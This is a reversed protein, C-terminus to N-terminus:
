ELTKVELDENNVCNFEFKFDILTSQIEVITDSILSKEGLLTEYRVLLGTNKDFYCITGFEDFYEIRYCKKGNVYSTDLSYKFISIPNKFDNTLSSIFSWPWELINKIDENTANENTENLIGDIFNYITNNKLVTDPLNNFTKILNKDKVWIQTTNSSSGLYEYMRIYYNASNSYTSIKNSITNFIILKRIYFVLIIFILIWIVLLIYKQKNNKLELNKKM